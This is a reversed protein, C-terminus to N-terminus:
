PKLPVTTFWDNGDKCTPDNSNVCVTGKIAFSHSIFLCGLIVNFINTWARFNASVCNLKRMGSAASREQSRMFIRWSKFVRSIPHVIFMSPIWAANLDSIAVILNGSYQYTRLKNPPEHRLFYVFLSLLCLIFGAFLKKKPPPPRRDQSREGM